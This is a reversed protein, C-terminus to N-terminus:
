AALGAQCALRAPWYSAHIPCGTRQRVAEADVRERLREAADEGRTHSWLYVPTLPRGNPDAAVLGHWFTSMAVAAVSHRTAELSATICRETIRLLALADVEGEQSPYPTHVETRHEVRGRSDYVAARVSSSGVDIALVRPEPM